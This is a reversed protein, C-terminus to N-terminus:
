SLKKDWKEQFNSSHSAGSVDVKTSSVRSNRFPLSERTAREMVLLEELVDQTGNQDFLSLHHTESKKKLFFLCFFVGLCLRACLGSLFGCNCSFFCATM